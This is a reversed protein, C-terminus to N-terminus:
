WPQKESNPFCLCSAKSAPLRQLSLADCVPAEAWGWMRTRTPDRPRSVRSRSFAILMWRARNDRQDGARRTHSKLVSGTLLGASNDSSLCFAHSKEHMRAGRWPYLTRGHQPFSGYRGIRVVKKQSPGLSRSRM